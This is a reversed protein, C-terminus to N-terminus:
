GGFAPWIMGPWNYGNAGANWGYLLGSTRSQMWDPVHDMITVGEDGDRVRAQVIAIEATRISMKMLDLNLSLAPVLYAALSAVFAQEFLSDFIVPNPQNVTYVAQADPLNTLVVQIPANTNDTSYAVAYPIQRDGFPAWPGASVSATTLPTGSVESSPLTPLLFRIQLSNSPVAYQYLWPQPPLPLTDGDPNEETGEAAALLTLVAQQRLCNWPATRALQEFTPVFLTNIADSETSGESLNSIQARAGISLLARNSLSVVSSSATM